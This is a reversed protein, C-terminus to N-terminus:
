SVDDADEAMRGDHDGIAEEISTHNDSAMQGSVLRRRNVMDPHANLEKKYEDEYDVPLARALNMKMTKLKRMM